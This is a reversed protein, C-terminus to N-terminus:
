LNAIHIYLVVNRDSVPRALVIGLIKKSHRHACYSRDKHRDIFLNNLQSVLHTVDPILLLSVGELPRIVAM